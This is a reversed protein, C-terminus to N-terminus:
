FVSYDHQWYNKLPYRKPWFPNQPWHFDSRTGKLIYDCRAQTSVFECQFFIFLYKGFLVFLYIPMCSRRICISTGAFHATIWFSVWLLINHSLFWHRSNFYMMKHFYSVEITAFFFWCDCNYASTPFTCIVFIILKLIWSM